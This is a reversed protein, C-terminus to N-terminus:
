SPARCVSRSNLGGAGMSSDRGAGAIRKEEEIFGSTFGARGSGTRAFSSARGRDLRTQAYQAAFQAKHTEFSAIARLLVMEVVACIFSRTMFFATM